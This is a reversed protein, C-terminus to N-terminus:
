GQLKLGMLAERKTNEILVHCMRNFLDVKGDQIM